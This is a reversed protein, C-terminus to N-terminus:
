ADGARVNEADMVIVIVIVIVIVMVMVMNKNQKSMSRQDDEGGPSLKPQPFRLPHPQHLVVVHGPHPDHLVGDDDGRFIIPNM